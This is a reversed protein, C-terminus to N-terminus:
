IEQVPKALNTNQLRGQEKEDIADTETGLETAMFTACRIKM